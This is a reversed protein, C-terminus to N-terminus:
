TSLVEIQLEGLPISEGDAFLRDFDHPELDEVSLLPGFMRQVERISAGAGVKAGTRDRIVSAASLHDAHAHTELVWEITLGKEASRALIRDAAHTEVKGSAADFDLVPDIVAAICTAHDSILYSVSNTADDFFAIIDPASTM